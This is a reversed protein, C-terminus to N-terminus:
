LNKRDKDGGDLTYAASGSYKIWNGTHTAADTATGMYLYDYGEGSLTIVASM